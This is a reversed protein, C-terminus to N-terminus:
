RASWDLSSDLSRPSHTLAGVSILDVGTAAIGAVTELSVGGSAEMLARGNTLGVAKKLTATDMNDLLVADVEFRLAEELQALTDVEVEIKVLHSSRARLLRLAAEIGGAAAIHNDKVLVADYLGFRHNVGGGCRVAFKEFARLGPTTKRTCAIRATTGQVKAVYASTLTAIGSLHCFFNLATREATLLARTRGMVKAIIDYTEVKGGDNVVRTFRAEPDLTKFAAEALDLGAIVGPERAVIAAEGQADAAIIPDTTIDGALGLDEALTAEVAQQVLLKPLELRPSTAETM